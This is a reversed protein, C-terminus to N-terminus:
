CGWVASRRSCAMATQNNIAATLREVFGSTVSLKVGNLVEPTNIIDLVQGTVALPQWRTVATPPAM